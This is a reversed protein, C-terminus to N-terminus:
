ENIHIQYFDFIIQRLNYYIPDHQQTLNLAQMQKQLAKEAINVKQTYAGDDLIYLIITDGIPTTKLDLLQMKYVGPKSFM